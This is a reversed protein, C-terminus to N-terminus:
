RAAGTGAETRAAARFLAAAALWLGAFGMSLVGGLLDASMGFAGVAMQAVATVLMAIPMGAPQFRALIMGLLATALVGGFLLNYPNGEDGIMGVALNAWVTLFAALVALVAGVRYAHSTSRRVLFETALGAGGLIVGAAVFDEATWNVEATFRMAVLPLALLAAVASWGLIRLANWVGSIEAKASM